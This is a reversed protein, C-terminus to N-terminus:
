KKKAPAPTADPPIWLKDDSKEIADNANDFAMSASQQVAECGCLAVTGAVVFGFILNNALSLLKANVTQSNM